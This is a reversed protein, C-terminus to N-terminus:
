KTLGKLKEYTRFGGIGLMASVLAMLGETDLMPANVNLHAFEIYWLLFPFIIYHYFMGIVGVWALAPRWGSKFLSASKAEEINIDVQGRLAKQELEEFKLLLEQLKVRTDPPLEGSLLYRIGSAGDSIGKGIGEAEDGIGFWGM